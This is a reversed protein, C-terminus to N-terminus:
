LNRFNEMGLKLERFARDKERYEFNPKAEDLNEMKDERIKQLIKLQRELAKQVKLQRIERAYALFTELQMGIEEIIQLAIPHNRMDEERDGLWIEVVERLTKTDIGVVVRPIQSLKGQFTGDGSEFYKITGLRGNDIEKKISRLKKELNKGVRDAGREFGSVHTVDIALAMVERSTEQDIEVVADIKNRIDDFRSAKRATVNEGMWLPLNLITLAEMIKGRNEAEKKSPSTEEEFEEEKDKIYELDIDVFKDTYMERFKDMDIENLRNKEREIKELAPILFRNEENSKKEPAYGFRERM